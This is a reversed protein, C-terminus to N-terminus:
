NKLKSHREKNKVWEKFEKRHWVYDIITSWSKFQKVMFNFWLQLIFFLIVVAGSYSIVIGIWKLILEEM